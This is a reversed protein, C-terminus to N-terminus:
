KRYRRGPNKRLLENQLALQADVWILSNPDCVVDQIVKLDLASSLDFTNSGNLIETCYKFCSHLTLIGRQTLFFPPLAEEFLKVVCAPVIFCLMPFLVCTFRIPLGDKRLAMKRMKRRQRVDSGSCDFMSSLAIKERKLGIQIGINSMNDFIKKSIETKVPYKSMDVGEITPIEPISHVVDLPLLKQVIDIYCGIYLAIISAHVDKLSIMSKIHSGISDSEPPHSFPLVEILTSLYRLVDGSSPFFARRFESFCTKPTLYPNTGHQFSKSIFAEDISPISVLKDKSVHRRLQPSIDKRQAMAAAHAEQARLQEQEALFGEDVGSERLVSYGDMLMLEKTEGHDFMSSNSKKLTPSLEQVIDKLRVKEQVAMKRAQHFMTERREKKKKKVNRIVRQVAPIECTFRGVVEAICVEGPIILSALLSFPNAITPDAPLFSFPQKMTWPSKVSLNMPYEAFEKMEEDYEASLSSDVSIGVKKKSQIDRRVAASPHSPSYKADDQTSKSHTEAFRTKRAEKEKAVGIIEQFIDEIRQELFTKGEGSKWDEMRRLAEERIEATSIEDTVNSLRQSHVELMDLQEERATDLFSGRRALDKQSSSSRIKQTSKQTRLFLEVEEEKVKEEREKRIKKELSQLQEEYIDIVSDIAQTLASPPISHTIMQSRLHPPIKIETKEGYMLSHCSRKVMKEERADQIREKNRPLQLSIMTSILTANDPKPPIYNPNTISKEFAAEKAELIKQLSTRSDKKKRTSPSSFVRSSSAKLSPSSLSRQGRKIVKQTLKLPNVNPNM